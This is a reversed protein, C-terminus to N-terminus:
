SPNGGTAWVLMGSPTPSITWPLQQTTQAQVKTLQKGYVLVYRWLSTSTSPWGLPAAGKDFQQLVTVGLPAIKNLYLAYSALTESPQPPVQVLYVEGPLLTPPSSPLLKYPGVTQLTTSLPPPPPPPSEKSVCATGNWVQGVPCGGAPPQPGTGKVPLNPTPAPTSSGSGKIALTVGVAALAVAASGGIWLARETTKKM